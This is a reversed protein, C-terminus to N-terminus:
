LFIQLELITPTIKLPQYNEGQWIISMPEHPSQVFHIDLWMNSCKNDWQLIYLTNSYM